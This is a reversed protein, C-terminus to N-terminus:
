GFSAFFKEYAEQALPTAMGEAVNLRALSNVRYVGSEPGDVLGKWGVPKLHPFKLYSWPEVREGLGELRTIPSISIKKAMEGSFFLGPYYIQGPKGHGRRATPLDKTWL